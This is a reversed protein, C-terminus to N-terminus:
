RYMLMERFEKNNMECEAHFHAQEQEADSYKDIKEHLKMQEQRTSVFKKKFLNILKRNQM